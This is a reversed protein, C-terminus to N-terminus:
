PASLVPESDAALNWVSAQAGEKPPALKQGNAPPPPAFHRLKSTHYSIEVAIEDIIILLNCDLFTGFSGDDKLSLEDPFLRTIIAPYGDQLPPIYDFGPKSQVMAGVVFPKPPAKTLEAYHNRLRLAYVDTTLNTFPPEAGDMDKLRALLDALGNTKDRM